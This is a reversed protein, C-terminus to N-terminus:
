PEAPQTLLGVACGWQIHGKDGVLGADGSEANQLLNRSGQLGLGELPRAIKM